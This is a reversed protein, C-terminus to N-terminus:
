RASVAQADLFALNMRVAEPSFSIVIWSRSVGIAPGALGLQLYWIGDEERMIRPRLGLAPATDTPESWHQRWATMMRDLTRRVAGVKADASLRIWITCLFPIKLPHPPYTHIVVYDGLQDVLGHEASFDFEREMRAWADRLRQRGRPSQSNLYAERASRVADPLPVHFAAYRQAGPPVSATVEPDTVERGTLMAYLDDGGVERAVVESRLARGDFGVTWLLTDAYELGVARLVQTPREEVVEGVRKRIRTFDVYAEIGSIPGHCREHAMRFWRDSGLPRARNEIVALMRELAGDGFGVVFRSGAEAWSVTAWGPLREDALEYVHVGDQEHDTIEAHRANTYTSLLDRIRRDIEISLGTGEIVLAAQMDNLRYVDDDIKRSTIDLLVLAHPHRTLMPLTGVIDAIVRGERPIVGMAKLTIIWGALHDTAGGPPAALMDPTPRGFYVAMADAPVLEDLARTDEAQLPPALYMVAMLAAIV